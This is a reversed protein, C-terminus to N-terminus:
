SKTLRDGMRKKLIRKAICVPLKDPLEYPHAKRDCLGCVYKIKLNGYHDLTVDDPDRMAYPNYTAEDYPQLGAPSILFLQEIRERRHSAYIAAVWGGCSHGVLLFKKPLPLADIAKVIWDTLWQEAKEPSEM